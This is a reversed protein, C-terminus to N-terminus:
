TKLRRSSKSPTVETNPLKSRAVAETLALKALPSGELPVLIRQTSPKDAEAM